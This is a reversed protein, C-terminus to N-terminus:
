NPVLARSYYLAAQTQPAATYAYGHREYFRRAGTDEGDVNIELLECGHRRALAEVAALLDSGVGRGREAPIVYMEDLLAVPADYWVNPRLTIVAVGVPPDGAIVAHVSEGALLRSLRGRLVEVGPTPTDFERNFADLLAAVTAADSPQAARPM